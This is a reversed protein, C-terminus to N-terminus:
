EEKRYGFLDDLGVEYLDALACATDAQPIQKGSEYNGLTQRTIHVAEAVDDQSMRAMARYGRLNAAMREVNLPM